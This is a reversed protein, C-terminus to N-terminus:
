SQSTPNVEMLQRMGMKQAIKLEEKSLGTLDIKTININTTNVDIQQRPSWNERDKMALWSKCADTDPPYHKTIPTVTIEGKYNSIHVDPHSYGIARQFLATAVKANATDRGKSIMTKFRPKTRKWYNITEESVGMVKAIKADSLGLLALEYAERPRDSNWHIKELAM